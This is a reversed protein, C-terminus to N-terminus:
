IGTKHSIKISLVYNQNRYKSNM